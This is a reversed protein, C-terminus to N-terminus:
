TGIYGKFEIKGFNQVDVTRSGELWSYQSSKPNKLHEEASRDGLGNEERYLHFFIPSIIYKLKQPVKERNEFITETRSYKWQSHAKQFASSLSGNRATVGFIRNEKNRSLIRYLAFFIRSGCLFSLFTCFIKQPKRIQCFRRRESISRCNKLYLLKSSKNSIM